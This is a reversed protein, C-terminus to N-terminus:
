FGGTPGGRRQGGQPQSSQFPTASASTQAQQAASVTGAIVQMGESINKGGIETSAGDTIGTRVRAEALEGKADLYYLV